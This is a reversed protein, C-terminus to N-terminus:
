SHETSYKISQALTQGHVHPPLLKAIMDLEDPKCHFTDGERERERERKEREGGEVGRWLRILLITLFVLLSQLSAIFHM